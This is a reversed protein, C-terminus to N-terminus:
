SAVAGLRAGADLRHGALFAGADMRKGGALQLETVGLAGDRAAVVIGSADARIVTGPSGFRGALPATKWIKIVHPGWRTQAGPTPDFARVRRDISRADLNWDIEAEVRALKAAYTAISDDQPAGQLEDGRELARLTEVVARAGLAALKDHLSGADERAHIPLRHQSLIPGTDLGEDMRMISIGTDRDGALIARAIPAAGRWRPLLSAHINICGDRPWSLVALPLILGYAAVVLVDLSSGLILSRESEDKLNAPQLVRLGHELALAKVPGPELKMGRGRPRDPRALVLDVAFGAELISRLATAAFAPTGAFGIRM